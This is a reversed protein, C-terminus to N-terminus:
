QKRQPQVLTLMKAEYLFSHQKARFQRVSRGAPRAGARPELGRNRIHRRSPGRVSAPVRRGGRVGTTLGGCSGM